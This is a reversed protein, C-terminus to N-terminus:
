IAIMLRSKIMTPCPTVLQSEILKNTGYRLLESLTQHSIELEEALEDISIDRPIEYYDQEWAAILGWATTTNFQLSWGSTRKTRHTEDTTILSWFDALSRPTDQM